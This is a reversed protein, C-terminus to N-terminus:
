RWLALPPVARDGRFPLGIEAGGSGASAYAAYIIELVDIAEGITQGPRGSEGGITAMTDLLQDVYGMQELRPDPAQRRLPIGIPEGDHEVLVEPILELRLVGNTGAAQAEWHPAEAVWSIELTAVLGGAFRISM